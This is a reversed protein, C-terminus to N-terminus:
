HDAGLHPVPGYPSLWGRPTLLSLSLSSPSRRQPVHTDNPGDVRVRGASPRCSGFKKRVLSRTLTLRTEAPASCPALYRKGAKPSRRVRARDPCAAALARSAQWHGTAFLPNCRPALANRSPGRMTQKRSVETM